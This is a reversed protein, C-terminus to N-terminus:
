QLVAAIEATTASGAHPVQDYVPPKLKREGKVVKIFHPLVLNKIIHMWDPMVDWVIDFMPYLSLASISNVGTAKRPHAKHKWAEDSELRLMGLWVRLPGRPHHQRAMQDYHTGTTYGGTIDESATAIIPKTKRGTERAGTVPKTARIRWGRFRERGPITALGTLCTCRADVKQNLLPNKLLHNSCKTTPTGSCSCV